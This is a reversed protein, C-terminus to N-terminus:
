EHPSIYPDKEQPNAPFVVLNGLKLKKPDFGRQYVLYTREQAM